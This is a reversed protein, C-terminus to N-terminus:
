DNSQRKILELAKDIGTSLADEYTRWWLGTEPEFVYKDWDNVDGIEYRWCDDLHLYVHIYINNKDRLWKAVQALTPAATMNDFDFCESRHTFIIRKTLNYYWYDCEWDFGIEKLKVCQEFSCYDEHTM